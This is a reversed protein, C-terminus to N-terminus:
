ANLLVQTSLESMCARPYCTWPHLCQVYFLRSSNPGLDRCVWALNKEKGPLCATAIAEAGKPVSFQFSM